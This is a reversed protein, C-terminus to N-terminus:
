FASHVPNDISVYDRPSTMTRKIPPDQSKLWNLIWSNWTSVILACIAMIRLDFYTFSHPLSRTNTNTQRLTSKLLYTVHHFKLCPSCIDIWHLSHMHKVTGKCFMRLWKYVRTFAFLLKTSRHVSIQAILDCIHLCFKGKDFLKEANELLRHCTTHCMHWSSYWICKVYRYM